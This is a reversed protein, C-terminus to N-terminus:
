GIAHMHVQVRAHAIPCSGHENPVHERARLVVPNVLVFDTVDRTSDVVLWPPVTQLVECSSRAPDPVVIELPIEM